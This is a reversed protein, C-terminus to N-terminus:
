TWVDDQVAAAGYSSNSDSGEVDGIFSYAPSMHIPVLEERPEGYRAKLVQSSLEGSSRMSDNAFVHVMLFADRELSSAEAADGIGIKGRSKGARKIGDKTLQSLIIFAFAQNDYGGLAATSLCSLIQNVYEYEGYGPTRYSKMRQAYDLVAYNIKHRDVYEALQAAFTHPEHSFEGPSVYHIDGRMDTKYEEYFERMAQLSQDDVAGARFAASAISKGKAYSHRGLLRANYGAPMDETYIYLGNKTDCVSNLYCYQLAMTTKFSGPGGVLVLSMGPTLTGYRENWEQVPHILGLPDMDVRKKFTMDMTKSTIPEIDVSGAAASMATMYRNSLNLRKKPDSEIGIEIYLQNAEKGYVERQFMNWLTRFAKDIGGYQAELVAPTIEATQPLITTAMTQPDPLHQYQRQYELVNTIVTGVDTGQYLPQAKALIPMILEQDSSRHTIVAFLATYDM